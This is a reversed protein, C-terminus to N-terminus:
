QPVELYKPDSISEDITMAVALTRFGDRASVVPEAERRAVAALHDLQVVYPNAEVRKLVSTGMPSQWNNPGQHRYLTLSPLSISAETGSIFYVDGPPPPPFYAGYGSTLDWCWPSAAADSAIATGIAGNGFRLVAGATDAVPFNRVSSSGMAMVADIDGVLHRIADIDHILNILVPGGGKQSRWPVEYYEEHKRWTSHIGVSVIEGLGGEDIFQKAAVIDPAYRRQHGVLVPVKNRESADIIRQAADLTDAIPKEVLVTLGRDLAAVSADAHMTNPLAVIVADVACNDMLSPYDSFHAVGMEQALIEGAPSPDAIAALEVGEAERCYRVHEKGILGAGFLGIKVPDRM